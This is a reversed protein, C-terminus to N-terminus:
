LKDGKKNRRCILAPKITKLTIGQVTILIKDNYDIIGGFAFETQIDDPM